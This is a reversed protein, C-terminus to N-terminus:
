SSVSTKVNNEERPRRGGMVRDIYKNNIHNWGQIRCYIDSDKKILLSFM